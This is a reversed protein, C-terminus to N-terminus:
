MHALRFALSASTCFVSSLPCVSHVSSHPSSALMPRVNGCVVLSFGFRCVFFFFVVGAMVLLLLLSVFVFVFVSLVCVVRSFLLLVVIPLARVLINSLSASLCTENSEVTDGMSCNDCVVGRPCVDEDVLFPRRGQM